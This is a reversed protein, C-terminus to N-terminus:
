RGSAPAAGCAPATAARPRQGAEDQDGVAHVRRAPRVEAVPLLGADRDVGDAERAADVEVEGDALRGGLLADDDAVLHGDLHGDVLAAPGGDLRGHAELAAAFDEGGLLDLEGLAVHLLDDLHRVAGLLGAAELQGGADLRRRALLVHRVVGDVERELHHLVRDADEVDLAEQSVFVGEQRAVEGLAVRVHREDLLRAARRGVVARVLRQGLADQGVLNELLDVDHDEAVELAVVERLRLVLREQLPEVALVVRQEHQAAVLREPRLAEARRRQVVHQGDLEGGSPAGCLSFDKLRWSVSLPWDCGIKASLASLTCFALSQFSDSASSPM